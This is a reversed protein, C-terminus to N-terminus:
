AGRSGAAEMMICFAQAETSTGSRDFNPAGCAGQVYGYVDMKARAAARMRDAHARYSGPLWGAGVGEYVAFALMQALNTEVFSEPRDIVDHFLGDPRQHALCGDVIERVFAALKERDRQRDRPLSRIV